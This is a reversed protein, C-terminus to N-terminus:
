LSEISKSKRMNEVFEASDIDFGWGGQISDVINKEVIKLDIDGTRGQIEESLEIHLSDIIKGKIIVM